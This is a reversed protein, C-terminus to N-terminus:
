TQQRRHAASVIRAARKIGAPGAQDLDRKVLDAKSPLYQEPKVGQKKLQYRLAHYLDSDRLRFYPWSLENTLWPAYVSEVFERPSAFRRAAEGGWLEPPKEPLPPPPPFLRNKIKLLHEEVVHKPTQQRNFVETLTDIAKDLDSKEAKDKPMGGGTHLIDQPEDLDVTWSDGNFVRRPEPAYNLDGRLADKWTPDDLRRRVM